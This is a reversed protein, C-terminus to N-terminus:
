IFFVTDHGFDFSTLASESIAADIEAGSLGETISAFLERAIPLKVRASFLDFFQLRDEHNPLGVFIHRDLRGPRLLSEDLIEPRNTAGVIFVDDRSNLGDLECLLQALVRVSVSSPNDARTRAISDLEDFFIVSPSKERAERFISNL